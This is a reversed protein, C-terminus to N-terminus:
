EADGLAADLKAAIAQLEVLYVADARRVAEHQPTDDKFPHNANHARLDEIRNNLVTSLVTLQYRNLTM